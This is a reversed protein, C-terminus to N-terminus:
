KGSPLADIQKKLDEAKAKNDAAHAKDYKGRYYNRLNSLADVSKPNLDVAKQLYPKALEFQDDAKQRLDDYQKQTATSPLKNAQNYLDIAPKMLVYGLNLNADFYEADIALAKKYYDSAKAYNELATAHLTKATADDKAKDAKTDAADGIRSYTLAAYYYLTKNRPDNTISAEISGLVENEKNAMLATLLQQERLTSNAPYKAVGAAITKLAAATDKTLIYLTTQYGYIKQNESYNTALLKNYDAIAYPYFKPNTNGANSASLAAYYTATTDGTAQSWSDFSQYAAEFKSAKYQAVGQTQYFIAVYTNAEDILKKYEGKTDLEKAKKIAEVATNLNPTATTAVSDEAALAGYIAGKLAYTQALGLNKENLVAKDISTKADALNVKAKAKIVAIPQGKIQDYEDYSEQANKVDRTQAFTAASMLGLLGIMLLKIKM